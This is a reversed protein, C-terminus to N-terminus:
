DKNQLSKNAALWSDLDGGSNIMVALREENPASGTKIRREELVAKEAGNLANGERPASRFGGTLLPTAAATAADTLKKVAETEQESATKQATAKHDVLADFQQGKITDVANQLGQRNTLAQPDNAQATQVAGQLQPWIVTDWAGAGFKGDVEAKHENLLLSSTSEAFAAVTPATAETISKQVIDGIFKTPDAVLQNLIENPDQPAQPTEPVVPAQSNDVQQQVAGALQGMQTSLQSVSEQMAQLEPNPEPAQAAAPEQSQSEPNAAPEAPTEAQGTPLPDSPM